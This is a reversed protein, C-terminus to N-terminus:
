EEAPSAHDACTRPGTLAFPTPAGNAPHRPPAGVTLFRRSRRRSSQPALIAPRIRDIRPLGCLRFPGSLCDRMPNRAFGANLILSGLGGRVVNWEALPDLVFARIHECIDPPQLLSCGTCDEPQWEGGICIEGDGAYCSGTPLDAETCSQGGEMGCPAGCEAGACLSFAFFAAEANTDGEATCAACDESNGDALCDTLCTLAADCLSAAQCATYESECASHWCSVCAVPDFSTDGGGGSQGSGGSGADGGRGASGGSEAVSGGAGGSAPGAGVCVNDGDCTSGDLCRADATCFCGAYGYACQRSDSNGCAPAGLLWPLSAALVWSWKSM